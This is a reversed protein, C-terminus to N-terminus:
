PTEIELSDLLVQVAELTDAYGSETRGAVVITLDPGNLPLVYYRMQDGALIRMNGADYAFTDIEPPGAKVRGEILRAPRGAIEVTTAPGSWEFNPNEVLWAVLDDPVPVPEHTSPDIVRSVRTIGVFDHNRRDLAIEDTDDKFPATWGQSLTFRLTPVFSTTFYRAGGLLGEHLPVPGFPVATPSADVSPGPSAPLGSAAPDVVVAPRLLYTAAGVALVAAAVAMAVPALRQRLDLRWPRFERGRRTQTTMSLSVVIARRTADPLETPGEDLWGGLVVDPDRHATM